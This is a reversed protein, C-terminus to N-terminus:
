KAAFVQLKKILYKIIVHNQREFKGYLYKSIKIKVM